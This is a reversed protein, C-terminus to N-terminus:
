RLAVRLLIPTEGDYQAVLRKITEGYEFTQQTSLMAGNFRLRGAVYVRVAMRSARHENVLARLTDAAGDLFWLDFASKRVRITTSTM